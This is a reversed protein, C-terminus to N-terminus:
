APGSFDSLSDGACAGGVCKMADTPAAPAAPDELMTLTTGPAHTTTGFEVACTGGGNDQATKWPDSGPVLDGIDVAAPLCGALAMFLVADVISTVSVYTAHASPLPTRGTVASWALVCALLALPLWRLARLPTAHSLTMFPHPRRTGPR